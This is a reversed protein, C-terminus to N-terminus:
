ALKRGHRHQTLAEEVRRASVPGSEITKHVVAEVEDLQAGAALALQRAHLSMHGRQIGETSLAKIAALNQALGSAAFLAALVQADRIGLIQHALAITPHSRTIGGVTGVAMPIETHGMLHDDQVTWRTLSRYQGDRAAYAHCGAEIARWDNGTALAVADVGNMFGKNHTAARYPDLYAFRDAEVVKHAIQVGGLASIPVRATARALRLDSFNSLIKLGVPIGAIKEVLPTLTEAVHNVLNAGMANAVHIVIHLVVIPPGGRTDRIYRVCHSQYGGGRKEMREAATKAARTIRESASRLKHEVRNAEQESNPSLQLQGIMHPPDAEAEFGGGMRVLKSAHSFAAVVSPEEVALPVLYDTGNMRFNLGLGLPIGLVGVVNEILKDALSLELAGPDLATLQLGTLETLVRRREALPWGYFGPIRSNVM